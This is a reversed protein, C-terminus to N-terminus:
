AGKGARTFWYPSRPALKKASRPPPSPAMNEKGEGADTIKRFAGRAPTAAVAAREGPKTAAAAAVPETSSAISPAQEPMTCLARQRSLECALATCASQSQTLRCALAARTSAMLEVVAGVQGALQGAAAAEEAASHVTEAQKAVAQARLDELQATLQEVNIRAAALEAEAGRARELEGSASAENLAAIAANASRLRDALEKCAQEKVILAGQANMLEGQTQHLWKKTAAAAREAGEKARVEATLQLRLQTVEQQLAAVQEGGEREELLAPADADAEDPLEWVSSDPCDEHFCFAEARYSLAGSTSCVDAIRGPTQAGASSPVQARRKVLLLAGLLTAIVLGLIAAQGASSAGQVDRFDLLALASAANTAPVETVAREVPPHHLVHTKAQQEAAYEARWRELLKAPDVDRMPPVDIVLQSQFARGLVVIGEMEMERMFDSFSMGLDRIQWIRDMQKMVDNVLSINFPLPWTGVARRLADMFLAHAARPIPPRRRPPSRTLRRRLPSRSRGRSRSRRRLSGGSRARSRSRARDVSASRARGGSASRSRTRGRPRDIRRKRREARARDGSDESSSHGRRRRRSGSRSRSPSGADSGSAAASSGSSSPAAGDLKAAGNTKAPGNGTKAGDAAKRRAPPSASRSRSHSRRRKRPSGRSRSCSKRRRKSAPRESSSRTGDKAKVEVKPAAAAAAKAAALATEKARADEAAWKAAAAEQQQRVKGVRADAAERAEEAAAAAKRAKALRVEHEKVTGQAAQLAADSAQLVTQRKQVLAEFGAALHKTVVLATEGADRKSTSEDRATEAARLKGWASEAAAAAAAAKASAMEAAASAEDLNKKLRLKEQEVAAPPLFKPPRVASSM